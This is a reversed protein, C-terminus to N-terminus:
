ADRIARRVLNQMLPVKFQNFNLTRAGDTAITAALNATEADPVRGTVAQEVARLRRPVCEVAGCAMRISKILGGEVTMASAVSVLAFDWSNRDAVKEFYFKAGSWERPYRVAVLIEGPRLVTMRTIDSAPGVFFEEAPVVREGAPGRIVMTAGLAVSATGTDTPSVAVCRRAGFLCHERNLGQPTDAYCTNGGARYCSVGYRYYWCRADQCLNGGLTGSNRIQPSAVRGAATALLGYRERVLASHEIDVLKTLAGIELGAASERIGYLSEIGTIEIVATPQRNRDKFWDLSDNGGAMIWAGPGLREALELARELTDPQYLEFHAMMDRHM